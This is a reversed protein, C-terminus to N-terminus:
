GRVMRGAYLVPGTSAGTRSGGSPESSVLLRAGAPVIVKIRLRGTTPLLGLSVPVTAGEPLEWLELSNGPQVEAATAIVTAYGDRTVMVLFAPGLTGQASLAAVAPESILLKPLVIAFAVAAGCMASAFVVGRWFALSEWTANPRRGRRQVPEQRLGAAIELRAWVSPPPMQSPVTEALPGLRRQWAVISASMAPDVLAQAAIARAESASLLGMVYEAANLDHDDPTPTDGSSGSM